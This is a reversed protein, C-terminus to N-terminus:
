MGFNRKMQELQTNAGADVVGSPSEILADYRELTPDAILKANINGNPTQIKAEKKNFFREYEEPHLRISVSDEAPMRAVADRLMSLYANDDSDLEKSLIKGAVDLAIGLMQQELSQLYKERETSLQKKLTDAEKNAKAIIEEVENKAQAYASSYGEEWAQDRLEGVKDEAEGIITLAENRADELMAAVEDQAAIILEDYAAQYNEMSLPPPAASKLEFLSAEEFDENESDQEPEIRFEETDQPQPQEKEFMRAFNAKVIKALM